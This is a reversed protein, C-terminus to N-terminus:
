VRRRTWPPLGMQARQGNRIRHLLRQRMMDLDTISMEALSVGDVLTMSLRGVDERGAMAAEIQALLVNDDYGAAKADLLTWNGYAVTEATATGDEPDVASIIIGAENEAYQWNGNLVRLRWAWLGAEAADPIKVAAYDSRAWAKVPPAGEAAGGDPVASLELVEVSASLPMLLREGITDGPWVQRAARM